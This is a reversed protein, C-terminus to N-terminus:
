GRDETQIWIVRLAMTKKKGEGNARGGNIFVRLPGGMRKEVLGLSGTLKLRGNGGPLLITEVSLIRGEGQGM